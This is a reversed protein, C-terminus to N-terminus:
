KNLGMVYMFREMFEKNALYVRYGKVLQRTEDIDAITMARAPVEKQEPDGKIKYTVTCEVIISGSNYWSGLITHKMETLINFMAFRSILDEKGHYHEDNFSVKADETFYNFWKEPVLTDASGLFERVFQHFDM